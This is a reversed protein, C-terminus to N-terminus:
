KIDEEDTLVSGSSILKLLRKVRKNWNNSNRNIKLILEM